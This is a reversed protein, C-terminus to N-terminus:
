STIIFAETGVLDPSKKTHVFICLFSNGAQFGIGTGDRVSLTQTRRCKLNLSDTRGFGHCEYESVHDNDLFHTISSYKIKSHFLLIFFILILFRGFKTEANPWHGARM